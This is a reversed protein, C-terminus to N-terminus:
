IKGNKIEKALKILDKYEKTRYKKPLQYQFRLNFGLLGIDLELENFTKDWEFNLNIFTFNIWNFQKFNVQEWDNWFTFQHKSHKNIKSMNTPNIM